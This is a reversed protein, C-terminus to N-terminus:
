AEERTAKEGTEDQWRQIAYDCWKPQQEIGRFVRGHRSAALLMAGSGACPDYVAARPPTYILGVEMCKVPKAWSMKNDRFLLHEQVSFHRDDETKHLEASSVVEKSLIAPHGSRRLVYVIEHILCPQEPRAWGRAAGTFVLTHVGWTKGLGISAIWTLANSGRAWVYLVKASEHPPWSEYALDFPPDVVQLFPEAGALCKTIIDPDRSDGCVLRHPGLRWTDGLKTVPEETPEEPPDEPTPQEGAMEALLRSVAADDSEIGALLAALAAEDEDAMGTLRDLVALMKDAEKEDLDTILTPILGDPDTDKRLHGDILVLGAPTEYALAAAAYGVDTLIGRLADSQKKPHRRFNKPNALLERAPVNRLEKIRNRFGVDPKKSQKM